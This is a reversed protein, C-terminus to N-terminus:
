LKPFVDAIFAMKKKLINLIQRLNWFNQFFNLFFNKKPSLERQIPETLCESKGLSPISTM